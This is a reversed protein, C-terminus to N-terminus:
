ICPPEQREPPLPRCRDIPIFHDTGYQVDRIWARDGSLAIVQYHPHFNDGTRVRDGTAISQAGAGRLDAPSRWEPMSM